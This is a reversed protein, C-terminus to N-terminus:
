FGVDDDFDAFNQGPVPKGHTQQQAAPQQQKADRSGGVLEIDRVFVSLCGKAEGSSKDLWAESSPEGDVVVQQGKTLYQVLKGEARKGFLACKVWETKEKDGYGSKVAVSFSCVATGSQTYKVEADRGLNGSFLYKNM